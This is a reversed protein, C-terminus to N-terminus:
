PPCVPLGKPPRTKPLGDRFAKVDDDYRRLLYYAQGFTFRMFSRINHISDSSRKLPVIRRPVDGSAIEALMTGLPPLRGEEGDDPPWDIM